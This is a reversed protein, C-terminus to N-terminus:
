TDMLLLDHLPWLVRIDAMRDAYRAQVRNACSEQKVESKSM